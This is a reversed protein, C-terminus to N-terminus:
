LCAQSCASQHESEQLYAGYCAFPAAASTSALLLQNSTSALPPAHACMILTACQPAPVSSDMTPAQVADISPLAKVPAEVSVEIVQAPATVAASDLDVDRIDSDAISGTDSIFESSTSVSDMWVLLTYVNCSWHQTRRKVSKQRADGLFKRLKCWIINLWSECISFLSNIDLTCIGAALRCKVCTLHDDWALIAQSCRVCLKGM